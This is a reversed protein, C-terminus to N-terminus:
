ILKNGLWIQGVNQAISQIAHCEWRTLFKRGAARASVIEVRDQVVGDVERDVGDVAEALAEVWAEAVVREKERVKDVEEKL